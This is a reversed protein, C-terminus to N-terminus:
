RFVNLLFLRFLSNCDPIFSFAIRLQCSWHYRNLGNWPCLHERSKRMAVNLLKLSFIRSENLRPPTKKITAAFSQFLIPKSISAYNM